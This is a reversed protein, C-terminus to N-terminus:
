SLSANSLQCYLIGDEECTEFPGQVTIMEGVMTNKM